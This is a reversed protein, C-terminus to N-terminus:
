PWLNFFVVPPMMCNSSYKLILDGPQPYVSVIYFILSPCQASLEPKPPHPQSSKGVEEVGKVVAGGPGM